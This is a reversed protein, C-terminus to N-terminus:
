NLAYAVYAATPGGSALMVYQKGDVMYTGPSNAGSSPLAQQWLMRGDKTDFAELNNGAGIFLVGSATVLPGSGGARGPLPVTWRYQGTNIDIANLTPASAKASLASSGDKLRFQGYGNFAYDLHAYGNQYGGVPGPAGPEGILARRDKNDSISSMGAGNGASSYFVGNHDAATGGWGGGFGPIVLTNQNLGLPVFPKGGGWLKAYLDRAEANAAPSADTLDDVTIEKHTLPHPLQPIPQTKSAVEGPVNSAPFPTEVIPFIPQGTVRDLVYVYFAKNTVVVVDRRVGNQTITTLVPPSTSDSDWLDHHVQQFDWLRKGTKADLAITSNAFRNDGVRNAGYFDDAPSGTNVFVIGRAADYSAGSWANAGGQTLYADAPWTEAGVEGPHPITHFTWVLRGTHADFARVDGPSAPTNEALRANVIILDGAVLEPSTLYVGNQEKPGRLNDRADIRGNDGFTPIPQGTEADLLYLFNERGFVIRLKGGDNWTALGRVPQTGLNGPDFTWKAQGTRADLAVVKRETTVVYATHGIMIPQTELGGAPMAFRWAEKLGTVNAPTIQALPSYRDAAGGGHYAWDSPSPASASQALAPAAMGVCFVTALLRSQFTM